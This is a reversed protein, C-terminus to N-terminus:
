FRAKKHYLIRERTSTRKYTKSKWVEPCYATRTWREVKKHRSLHAGIPERGGDSVNTCCFCCCVSLCSVVFWRGLLRELAGLLLPPRSPPAVGGGHQEQPGQQVPAPRLVGLEAGPLFCPPNVPTVTTTTTHSAATRARVPRRRQRGLRQAVTTETSITGPHVQRRRAACHEAGRPAGRLNLNKRSSHSPETRLMSILRSPRRSFIYKTTGSHHRTWQLFVGTTSILHTPALSRAHTNSRTDHAGPRM